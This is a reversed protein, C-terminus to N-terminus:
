KGKARPIYTIRLNTFSCPIMCFYKEEDDVPVPAGCTERMRPSHVTVANPAYYLPIDPEVPADDWVYYVM